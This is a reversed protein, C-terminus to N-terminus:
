QSDLSGTDADFLRSVREWDGSRVGEFSIGLALAYSQALNQARAQHRELDDVTRLPRHRADALRRAAIAAGEDAVFVIHDPQLSAIVAAPIDVLGADNDIVCHGDFLIPREPEATRAAAFAAALRRQNHAIVDETATRLIEGPQNLAARLLASAELHLIAPQRTCVASAMWGKGVGSLGFMAVVIPPKM